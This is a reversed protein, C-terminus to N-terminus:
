THESFVINKFIELIQTKGIITLKSTQELATDGNLNRFRLSAGHQLFLNFIETRGNELAIQLGTNGDNFMGHLVKDVEFGHDLFMKVWEQRDAMIALIMWDNHFIAGPTLLRKGMEIDNKFLMVLVALESGLNQNAGNEVIKEVMTPLNKEIAHHLPERGTCDKTNVGYAMMTKVFERDRVVKSGTMNVAIDCFQCM